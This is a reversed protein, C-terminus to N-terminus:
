PAMLVHVHLSHLSTALLGFDLNQGFDRNQAVSHLRALSFQIQAYLQMGRSRLIVAMCECLKKPKQMLIQPWIRGFDM